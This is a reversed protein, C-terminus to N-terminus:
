HSITILIVQACIGTGGVTASSSFFFWDISVNVVAFLTIHHLDVSPDLTRVICVNPSKQERNVGTNVGQQLIHLM